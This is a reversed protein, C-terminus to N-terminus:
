TIDCQAERSSIIACVEIFPAMVTGFQYQLEYALMNIHCLQTRYFWCNLFYKTINSHDPSSYYDYM